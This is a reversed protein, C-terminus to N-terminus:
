DLLIMFFRIKNSANNPDKTNATIIARVPVGSEEWANAKFWIDAAADLVFHPPAVGTSTSNNVDSPQELQGGASSTIARSSFVWGTGPASIM